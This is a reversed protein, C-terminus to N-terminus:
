GTDGRIDCFHSENVIGAPSSVERM